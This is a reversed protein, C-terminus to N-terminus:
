TLHDLKTQRPVFSASVDAGYMEKFTSVIERTTMGQAYLFLIKDDMATFRRQNKCILV